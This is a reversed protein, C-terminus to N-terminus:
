ALEEDRIGCKTCHQGDMHSGYWAHECEAEERRNREMAMVLTAVVNPGPTEGRQVQAVAVTLAMNEAPELKM